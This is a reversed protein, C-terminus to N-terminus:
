QEITLRLVRAGVSTSTFNGIIANREEETKGDLLHEAVKQWDTKVSDKNNKWTCVGECITADSMFLKIRNSLVAEKEALEKSRSKVCVLTHAVKKIEETADVKKDKVGKEFIKKITETQSADATPMPQEESGEAMYRNWFDEATRVIADALEQNYEM